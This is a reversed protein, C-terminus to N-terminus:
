RGASALARDAVEGLLAVRGPVHGNAPLNCTLGTVGSGAIEALREGVTDADGVILMQKVMDVVGDGWGKAEAMTRLDDDVEEMTPAVVCGVLVTVDIESPNRGFRECHEALVELKHAVDLDGRMGM